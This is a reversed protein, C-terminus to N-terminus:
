KVPEYYLGVVGSEFVKSKVLKLKLGDKIDKFLPSGSGVVASELKFRYEDILGLRAFTQALRAGGFLVIDGGKEQKLKAVERRVDDDSKASVLRSNKWDLKQETHSFVIKPSDEIWHAFEVLDKPSKPDVAMAPWAQQFGQYLVRGLVMTDVTSLLDAILYRGVSEDAMNAWDLEGNPGAVIGDLSMHMFLIIKRMKNEKTYSPDMM